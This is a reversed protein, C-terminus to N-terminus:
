PPSLNIDSGNSPQVPNEYGNSSDFSYVSGGYEMCVNEMNAPLNEKRINAKVLLKDKSTPDMKDDESEDINSDIEHYVHHFDYSLDDTKKHCFRKIFPISFVIFILSFACVLAVIWVWEDKTNSLNIPAPTRKCSPEALFCGYGISICAPNEFIRTSLYSFNHCGYKFHRCSYTNVKSVHKVLYLCYGKLIWIKPETYCFELLKTFNENPLCLYGNSSSCNIASSRKNWEIEDKPCFSTLYVPFQYGELRKCEDLVFLCSLFTGLIVLRLKTNLDM